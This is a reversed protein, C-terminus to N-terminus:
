NWGAGPKCQPGLQWRLRCAWHWGWGPTWTPACVGSSCAQGMGDDEDMDARRRRGLEPSCWAALLM